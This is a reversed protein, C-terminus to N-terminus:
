TYILGYKYEENNPYKTGCLSDIWYEGFNYKPYKHHLLHHNGMIWICRKDHKMMGRINIFLFVILLIYINKMEAIKYINHFYPIFLGINQIQGEIIHSTYVDLFIINQKIDIKHHIKHIFYFNKNHLIMHLLYFWIDYCLINIFVQKIM